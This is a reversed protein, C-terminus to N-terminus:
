KNKKSSSKNSKKKNSAVFYVIVGGLVVVSLVVLVTGLVPSVTNEDPDENPVNISYTYSSSNGVEDKVTFKLSYNGTQTFKWEYGEGDSVLNTVTTGDPATLSVTLKDLLKDKSTKNDSLEIMSNLDLVYTENLSIETPLDKDQNNWTLVPKECDGIAITKTITTENGAQDITYYKITYTGESTAKFYRVYDKNESEDYEQVSPKTGNPGTVTYVVELDQKTLKDTAIAIPIEINMYDDGEAPAWELSSPLRYTLDLELIPDETDKATITFLDDELTAPNGVSDVATYRIFFTGESTPIFGNPQKTYTAGNSVKYIEWTIEGEVTEGNKVLRGTPVRFYEGVEIEKNFKDEDDITITPATKDNVRIGFSKVTTNGAFDQATYTVTYVGYTSLKFKAGSITYTNEAKNYEVVEQQVKSVVEGFQNTIVLSVTLNNDYTEIFKVAPIEIETSGQDFPALGITTGDINIQTGDGNGDLDEDESLYGASNISKGSVTNLGDSSVIKDSNLEFLSQNWTKSDAMQFDPAVTDLNSQVVNITYKKSVVKNTGVLQDDAESGRTGILTSDVYAEAYIDFTTLDQNEAILSLIDIEYQGDDNTEILEVPEQGPVQYYTRVEVNTDYTDTATPKAFVLTKEKDSVVDTGVNLNIKTQGNSLDYDVDYIVIDYVIEGLTNGAKDTAKYRIESNGATKFEIEAIENAPTSVTSVAGTSSRYTRTIIIDDNNTGKYTYFNDTAYAAPIKVKVSKGNDTNKLVAVSPIDVRRNVLMEEAVERQTMDDTATVTEGNVSIIEGNSDFEYEYTPILTPAQKDTVEIIDGPTVETTKCSEGFLPISASYTVTYYGEETPHFTYDEYNVEIVENPNKLNTVKVTIHANIADLSSASETVKVKPISIDTNVNGTSPMSDLFTMTLKLNSTDYENVVQFNSELRSIVNGAQRYEYVIQYTGTEALSDKSVEYYSDTADLTLPVEKTPTCLYVVLEDATLDGASKEVEEGDESVTVSPAPIKFGEQNKQMKAPIVYESNVPLNIVADEKEVWVSLNNVTSVVQGEKRATVSVNYYGEYSAIFYKDGVSSNEFEPNNSIDDATVSQLTINKNGKKVSYEITEENGNDFSTEPMLVIDGVNYSDKLFPKVILEAGEVQTIEGTEAKVSINQQVNTVIGTATVGALLLPVIIKKKGKM